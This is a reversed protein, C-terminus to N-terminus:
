LSKISAEAATLIKSVEKEGICTSIFWSEYGSPPLYIGRSLMNRFFKGFREMDCAKADDFNKIKDPSFFLTLMSGVRNVTHPVGHKTCIASLGNAVKEATAEMQTYYEPHDALLSLMTLGAHMAVPNGSLTGAQYIPGNPSVYDM